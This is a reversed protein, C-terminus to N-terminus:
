CVELLANATMGGGGASTLLVKQGTKPQKDNIFRHLAIGVTSGSTNGHHQITEVTKELPINLGKAVSRVLHINGQHPIFWDIEEVNLGIAKMFREASEVMGSTAKVFLAAGDLMRIFGQSAAAPDNPPLKSGGAPVAVTDAVAGDAYLQSSIYKFSSQTADSSMLVAAAGDGFLSATRLDTKDLYKSRIDASVVLQTENSAICLAAAVHLASVFGACAAGLDFTGIGQLGLRHQVLPSTPPSPYDGSITSLILNRIRSRDDPHKALLKECAAYVIDSCSESSDVWFRERIGTTSVIWDIRSKQGTTLGMWNLLQENSIPRGPLFEVPGKIYIGQQIQILSM